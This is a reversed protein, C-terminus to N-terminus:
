QQNEATKRRRSKVVIYAALAGLAIVILAIFPLNDVSIGTPTVPKYANTYDAANKAEGVIKDGTSLEKNMEGPVKSGAVGNVTVIYSPTYDATAKENVNFTTGVYLDTFILRQGHKLNVTLATGPTFEIIPKSNGDVTAESGTYNPTIDTVIANKADVVYAAHKTLAGTIGTHATVKVDFAFYKEKDAFAESVEKKISLTDATTPDTPDDKGNNKLYTNTFIMDSDDTTISDDTGPTADVKGEADGGNTGDQIIIEAAIAYVFNGTGAANDQVYVSVKYKAGSYTLKEKLTDTPSYSTTQNETVYYVYVGAHPWDVRDVINGSEKQVNKTGATVIGADSSAFSITKTGLDPMEALDAVGTADNVSV